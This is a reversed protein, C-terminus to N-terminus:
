VWELEVRFMEEPSAPLALHNLSFRYVPGRELEPPSYPLALTTILGHWEPVPYHLAIHMVSKAVSTAQEQSEATAEFVLLVEHGPRRQPEAAGLVGDRGYVRIRLDFQGAPFAARVRDWAAGEMAALWADLQDLIVPDRVAGLIVTQHGLLQTGELRITCRAARHFESGSVKVARDSAAEYVANTTDLVGSPEHLLYPDATEYLSHSAVSQPTSRYHPNCPEVVFHDQRLWAFMCDPHTRQTVAAAGCELIKAAHWAVAPPIGRSVPVAAFISTDSARGAVIVDAGEALARQFPEVGSMAVVPRSTLIQEPVLPPSPALPLICGTSLLRLLYDHQQESRVLGLRFHLSQEAAIEGVIEALWDVQADAGGTGASGIILPVKHARAAALMLAVDQKVARRSFMTSGSGLYYPGGDTTGADCGIFHPEWSMGQQLSSELFGSGLMGTPSLVRLEPASTM